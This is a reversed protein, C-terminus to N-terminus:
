ILEIKNKLIKSNTSKLGDFNDKQFTESTIKKVIYEEKKKNIEIKVKKNKSIRNLITSKGTSNPGVLIAGKDMKFDIFDNENLVIKM